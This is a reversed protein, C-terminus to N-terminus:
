WLKLNPDPNWMVPSAYRRDFWRFHPLERTFKKRNKASAAFSLLREQKDRVVFATITAQEHDGTQEDTKMASFLLLAYTATYRCVM